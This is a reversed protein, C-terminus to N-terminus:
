ALRVLQYGRAQRTKLLEALLAQAHAEDSAPQRLCNGLASGKAGWGRWLEWRGFLDQQVGCLYYRTPTELRIM